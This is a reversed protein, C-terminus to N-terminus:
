SLSHRETGDQSEEIFKCFIVSHEYPGKEFTVYLSENEYTDALILREQM